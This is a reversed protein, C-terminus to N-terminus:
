MIEYNKLKLFIIKQLHKENFVSQKGWNTHKAILIYLFLIYIQLFHNYLLNMYKSYYSFYFYNRRVLWISVSHPGRNTLSTKPRPPIYVDRSLQYRSAILIAVDM